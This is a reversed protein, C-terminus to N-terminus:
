TLADLLTKAMQDGTRVIAASARYAHAAANMDVIDEALNTFQDPPLGPQQPQAKVVPVAARTTQVPTFTRAEAVPAQVINHARIAIRAEAAQMGGVGINMISTMLAIM